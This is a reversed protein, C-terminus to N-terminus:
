VCLPSPEKANIEEKFKNLGILTQKKSEFNYHFYLDILSSYFVFLAKAKPWPRKPRRGIRSQGGALAKLRIKYWSDFDIGHTFTLVMFGLRYWVILNLFFDLKM